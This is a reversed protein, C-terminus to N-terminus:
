LPQYVMVSLAGGTLHFGLSEYLHRSAANSAQTNLVLGPAGAEWAFRIADTVLQRGAGQGQSAPHIAVRVLHAHGDGNKLTTMAFGLARHEKAAVVAHDAGLLWGLLTRQDYRWFPGFAAANLELITEADAASASRLDCSCPSLPPPRGSPREYSIVRDIERFGADGLANLLWDESALCVLGTARLTHLKITAVQLLRRLTEAAPVVQSVATLMVDVWLESPDGAPVRASLGLFGVAEPGSFAITSTGNSLLAVQEEVATIGHRRWTGALLAALAPRDTPQVLRASVKEPKERLWWSM